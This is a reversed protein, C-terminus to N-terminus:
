PLIAHCLYVIEGLSFFKEQHNSTKHSYKSFIWKVYVIKTTETDCYDKLNSQYMKFLTDIGTLFILNICKITQYLQITKGNEVIVYFYLFM